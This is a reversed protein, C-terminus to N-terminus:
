DSSLIKAAFLAIDDLKDQFHKKDYVLQDYENELQTKWKKLKKKSTRDYIFGPLIMLFYLKSRKLLRQANHVAVPNDFDNLQNFLELGRKNISNIKLLIDEFVLEHELLKQKKESSLSRKLFLKSMKLKSRSAPDFEENTNEKLEQLTWGFCEYLKLAKNYNSSEVIKLEDNNNDIITSATQSQM